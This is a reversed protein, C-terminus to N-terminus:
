QVQLAEFEEKILVFKAIECVKIIVKAADGAVTELSIIYKRVLLLLSTLPVMKSSIFVKNLIM